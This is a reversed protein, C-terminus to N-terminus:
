RFFSHFVDKNHSYYRLFTQNSGLSCSLYERNDPHLAINKLQIAMSMLARAVIITPIFSREQQTLPQVSMFGTLVERISKRVTDVDGICGFVIYCLCISIDTINPGIDVDGFDIICIEDSDTILINDDNLDYHCLQWATQSLVRDLERQVSSVLEAHSGLLPRTAQRFNSFNWELPQRRVSQMSDIMAFKELSRSLLGVTRGISFLLASDTFRGAKSLLTGEIYQTVLIRSHALYQRIEPVLVSRSALKMAKELLEIDEIPTNPNFVKVVLKQGDQLKVLVNTDKESVLRETKHISSVDRDLLEAIERNDM